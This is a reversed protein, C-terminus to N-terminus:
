GLRVAVGICSFTWSCSPLSRRGPRPQIRRLRDASAIRARARGAPRRSSGPGRRRAGGRGASSPEALRPELVFVRVARRGGIRQRYNEYGGYFDGPWRSSRAAEADTAAPRGRAAAAATPSPRARTPRSTSCGRRPAVGARLQHRAAGADGAVPHRDPPQHAAPRVQPGHDDPRAGPARRAPRPRQAPRRQATRRRRRPPAAHALLALRRRPHRRRWRVSGSSRTPAAHRYGLDAALGMAPGLACPARGGTSAGVLLMRLQTRARGAIRDEADAPRAVVARRHHGRLLRDPEGAGAPGDPVLRRNRCGPWDTALEREFLELEHRIARAGVPPGAARERAIFPFHSRRQACTSSLVDVSGDIVASGPRGTARRAAPRAALRLVPDVLALGLEEISAFHRYFATPVIGVEKTVQRLSLAALDPEDALQLAADLIAQRTREKRESRRPSSVATMYDSCAQAGPMPGPARKVDHATASETCTTSLSCINVSLLCRHTM